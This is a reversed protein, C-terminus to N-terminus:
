EQTEQELQCRTCIMKTVTEAEHHITTEVDYWGNIMEGFQNPLTKTDNSYGFHADFTSIYEDSGWEYPALMEAQHEEWLDALNTGEPYEDAWFSQGCKCTVGRVKVTEAYVKEIVTEDWAPIVVETPQFDHGLAPIFETKTEECETCKLMKYGPTDCTAEKSDVVEDFVHEEGLLYIYFVDDETYEVNFYFHEPLGALTIDTEESNADSVRRMAYRIADQVCFVANEQSNDVNGTLIQTSMEFSANEANVSTSYIAGYSEAHEIAADLLADVDPYFGEEDGSQDPDEPDAPQDPDEPDTPQEPDEPDTPQDPDEPNTPQEPDEPDTPEEPDVPEEPEVPTEPDTPEEPDVPEEPEVPTEPDTPEEPNTVEGAELAAWTAVGIIGDVKLGADEQFAKVAELTKWGFIGDVEGCDYGLKNLLTQAERVADGVSGSWIEPHSTQEPEEPEVPTEPETPEEPQTVEGAELAAWTAIGVIGDVKLGADKQFAKVAAETQAGFIGDVVGCDYGLQNLLTQAEQVANGVYGNWIEPHTTPQEPEEPEEPKTVEGSDLAENIAGWTAIGVIGDVKLGADTQFTRVAEATKTGFIGDVTGANYGFDNLTEQLFEVASGTHGYWIEPRTTSSIGKQPIQIKQGVYILNVNSIGNYQALESVSIGYESAIDNLTDGWVVTYTISPQAAFVPISSFGSTLMMASCTYVALKSAARKFRQHM